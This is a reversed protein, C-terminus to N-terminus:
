HINEKKWKFKNLYIIKHFIYVNVKIFFYQRRSYHDNVAAM